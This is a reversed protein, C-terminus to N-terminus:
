RRRLAQGIRRGAHVSERRATARRFCAAGAPGAPSHPVSDPVIPGASGMNAGGARISDCRAMGSFSSAHRTAEGEGENGAQEDGTGREGGDGAVVHFERRDDAVAVTARRALGPGADLGVNLARQDVAQDEVDLGALVPLVLEDIGVLRGVEVQLVAVHGEVLLRHLDVGAQRDVRDLGAPQQEQAGIGRARGYM